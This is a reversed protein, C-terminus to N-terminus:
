NLKVCARVSYRDFYDLLQKMYFFYNADEHGSAVKKKKQGHLKGILAKTM